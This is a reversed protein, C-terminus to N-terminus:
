RFLMLTGSYSKDNVNITYMYTGEPCPEGASTHGDWQINNGSSRFMVQGWRNYITMEVCEYIKGPVTVKYSDNEGDFNPTFVNPVLITYYDDFSLVSSSQSTTSVCGNSNTVTLDTTFTGSYAFVHEPNVETSTEGDNFNWLFSVGDISTNIFTVSIGECAPELEMDFSATPASYITISISDQDTCGAINSVSVYYTTSTSPTAIPNAITPDTLDTAPTWLYTNGVSGFVALQVSEGACVATDPLTHIRFVNVTVTDSNVCFNTDTGIVVYTTTSDPTAVPSAINGNDLSIAPDWVYTDAGSASLNASGGICIDQDAGANITPLPNVVVTVSDISSCNNGDTGTVFYLTTDSPSAMPNAILENSLGATPTWIYNTAGTAQLQASDGICIQVDTGADVGPLTNVTIIITDTNICLNVDTGEVVYTITSLTSTIPNSINPDDLDTAPSWVYTDAGTSQMQYTNGICIAADAGASVTPLPNVTIVVTDTNVCTNADEGEVIYTTTVTPDAVPNSISPDDLDTTPTWSYNVAGSASLQTNDGFCIAVDAGADITPLPNVNVIVTDTNVCLNADTGAVVYTTTTNPYALPDAILSDSLTVQTNWVYTVAGSASLQVTDMDCITADVGANVLPLPNVTIIITDTNVCLNADTGEVVYTIDVLTSTIPNSINPDDLDTAPTWVYTDAGTAQMQYTSGICIAADAGASVTPLPNVTVVVTDTNVCTNADEGEVIYTTTVTPDAVPNSISPDDLDTTPTWSYNVAGSASLQTNDGFCIAVDAGANITPLPNVTVIISDTNTCLNVDTGEVVYTTTTIPFALPNSILSDSLTIQENWVYSDAGSANLQATDGFCIAIDVGADVAPPTRVTILVSDLGNCTDNNTTLYFWTTTTPFAMPNALTADDLLSAPAWLYTTNLGTSSPNGGIMVTDGPCITTDTGADTPVTGFVTVQVTDMDVCGNGDTVTLIYETDVPPSFIPTFINPDSLDSTPTWSPTGSGSGDLVETPATTGNTVSICIGKDAGADANPLANVTVIITDTAICGIADSGTVVYQTTTTPFADPDAINPDSLGTTPSWLYNTAGTASLGVTDGICIAVDAGADVVPTIGVTVIIQATDSCVGTVGIVQYTETASPCATPNSLSPDDLTATPTWSYTTAGSASLSACDGSCITTDNSTTLTFASSVTVRVTDSNECGIADTLTLAYDTTNSPDAYPNLLAPDSLTAVPTWAFTGAAVIGQLQVSDGACLSTDVGADVFPLNVNVTVSDFGFCGGGIDITLYYKTTDTPSVTPTLTTPNTINTNPTWSSTFGPGATTSGSLQTSQGFCITVDPGAEVTPAPTVTVQYDIPASVCGFQNEATLSISVAGITTWEIDISSGNNAVINGGTVSWNYNTGAIAQTTYTETGFQCVVDAGTISSPPDVPDVYIEYVNNAANPPCGDDRASIQFQYPATRAQGCVTTWCFSTSVTDPGTVPSTVTAPPNTLLPDFIAGTTTLTVNNGNPDNYGYDFCLTEGETITFVHSTTGLNADIVPAPNNPCNLVLLQLDRRTIGILNGNRFEKIEIAVVYDGVAPPYYTTLGTSASISTYGGAGFPQALSYGGAYNVPDIPYVLFPNQPNPAPNGNSAEGDYPVVFSFTLLDGDPDYASNLITTTDGVCLFPVPDDTFVPSSNAVLPPPIYSYFSMSQDAILNVISGNRCCREYVLHYGTFNLPLDITGEYVGKNICTNAGVSCSSPQDPEILEVSILNLQLETIFNKNGGGTPNNQVNHEYIGIPQIPDEPNPIQSTPGCDTYTILTVKYRYNNGFKGLYTYGMSGGILHTAYSQSVFLVSILAFAFIKQLM